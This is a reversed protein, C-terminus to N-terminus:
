IRIFIRRRYLPALVALWFGLLLIPFLLSGGYNGAWPALIKQFIFGKLSITTEELTLKIVGMLKALLSSGVYVTIPNTGFVLFPYAWKRYGGIEVVLLCISLTLIAAGGTFLVYTSTWLNKNIPFFPNFVLGLGLLGLGAPVLRAMKIKLSLQRRRLWEGTFVGLLTTVLAPCTSLLGEPDFHPRYLHGALLKTDIYGALNAEASFADPGHGPFPIFKLAAWYGLLIFISLGLQFRRSTKLYLLSALFYCIAIRQLVGPIRLHALDFRPIFNLLLGLFFLILSRRLIKAYLRTSTEGSALRRSLSLSLSVGVIFLFFPFILDTPTWGHWQAHRLPPLVYRWSGPNNVMIMAAI